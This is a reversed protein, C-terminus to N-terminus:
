INFYFYKRFYAVTKDFFKLVQRPSKLKKFINESQLVTMQIIVSFIFMTSLDTVVVM